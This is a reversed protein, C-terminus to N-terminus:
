PVVLARSSAANSRSTRSSLGSAYHPRAEQAPHFESPLQTTSSRTPADHQTRKRLDEM